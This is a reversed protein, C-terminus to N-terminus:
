DKGFYDALYDAVFQRLKEHFVLLEDVPLVGQANTLATRTKESTEQVERLMEQLQDLNLMTTM